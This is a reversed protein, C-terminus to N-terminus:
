VDYVRRGLDADDLRTFETVAASVTRALEGLRGFIFLRTLARVFLEIHATLHKNAQRRLEAFDDQLLQFYVVDTIVSREIEEWRMKPWERSISPDTIEDMFLYRDRRAFDDLLILLMQLVTDNTIYDYDDQTFQRARYTPTFCRNVVDDRLAVLNHGANRLLTQAPFTGNKEFEDLCIIIKMLREFGTALFLLWGFHHPKPAYPRNKALVALGAEIAYIAIDLEQILAVKQRM